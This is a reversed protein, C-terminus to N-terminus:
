AAAVAHTTQRRRYARFGILGVALLAGFAAYTSPEPVPTFTVYLSGVSTTQNEHVTFFDPAVFNFKVWHGAYVFPAISSSSIGYQDDILGGVNETNVIQFSIPSLLSTHAEPATLTIWLDFQASSATSGGVNRGNTVQFIDDAVLGGSTVGSFDKQTFEILTPVSDDTYPIGSKFWASSGDPANFVEDNPGASNTFEGTLKGDIMLQAHAATALLAAAIAARAFKFSHRPNTHM